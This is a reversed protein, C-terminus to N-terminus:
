APIQPLGPTCNGRAVRSKTSMKPCKGAFRGIAGRRVYLRSSRGTPCNNSNQSMAQRLQGTEKSKTSHPTQALPDGAPRPHGASGDRISPPGLRPANPM